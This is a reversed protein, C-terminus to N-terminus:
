MKANVHVCVFEYVCICMYVYICVYVVYWVFLYVCVCMYVVHMCVIGCVMSMCWVCVYMGCVYM